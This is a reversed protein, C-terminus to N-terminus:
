PTYQFYTIRRTQADRCAICGNRADRYGEFRSDDVLAEELFDPSSSAPFMAQISAPMVPFAFAASEPPRAVEWTFQSVGATSLVSWSVFTSLYDAAAADGPWTWSWSTHGPDGPTVQPADLLPLLASRDISALSPAAGAVIVHHASGVAVNGSTTYAAAFSYSFSDAAVAGPPAFYLNWTTTSAEDARGPTPYIRAGAFISTSARETKGWGPPAPPTSGSLTVQLTQLSTSWSPLMATGALSADPLATWALVNTGDHAYALLDVTGDQLDNGFFPVDTDPAAAGATTVTLNRSPGGASLRFRTAGPHGGPLAVRVQGNISLVPFASGARLEDGPEVGVFTVASPGQFSDNWFATLLDGAKVRVSATGQADTLTEEVLGGDSDHRIVSAAEVPLGSLSDFVTITARRSEGNGGSCSACLLALALAARARADM